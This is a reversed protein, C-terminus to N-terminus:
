FRWIIGTFLNIEHDDDLRTSDSAGSDLLDISAGLIWASSESLPRFYTAELTTTWTAGPDYAAITATAEAPNVGYLYHSLQSDHYTASLSLELAGKGLPMGIGLELEASFGDHEGTIDALFTAEAFLQGYELRARLGAELALDRSLQGLNDDDDPDPTGFRPNILATLTIEIEESSIIGFDYSIEDIGIHLHETEYALYPLISIEDSADKYPSVEFLAAAGFLWHGGAPNPPTSCHLIEQSMATAPWLTFILAAPIHRKTM